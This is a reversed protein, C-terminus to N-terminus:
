QAKPDTQPSQAYAPGTVPALALVLAIVGTLMRRLAVLKM